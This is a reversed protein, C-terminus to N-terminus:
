LPILISFDTGEKEVTDFHLQWRHAEICQKTYYLGLGLGKVAKNEISKTNRYFKDFINKFEDAPIGVGNDAIHVTLNKENETTFIIVRKTTSTNYKVGNEIINIIMTTVWFKDLWITHKNGSPKFSIDVQSNDAQIMYDDVVERLLEEIIVPEKQLTSESMMTIDIVQRFLSNLREAQRGIVGTLSAVMEKNEKVPDKELTKNAIIIASLPTQFEHNISNVFDSKM